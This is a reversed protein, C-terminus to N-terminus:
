ATHWHGIVRDMALLAVTIAVFLVIGMTAEPERRPARLGLEYSAVAQEANM